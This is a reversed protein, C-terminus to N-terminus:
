AAASVPAPMDIEPSGNLAKIEGMMSVPSGTYGSTGDVERIVNIGEALKQKMLPLPVGFNQSRAASQYHWAVTGDERFNGHRHYVSRPRLYPDAEISAARYELISREREMEAEEGNSCTWARTKEEFHERLVARKGQWETKVKLDKFRANEGEAVDTYGFVWDEDGSLGTLDHTLSLM